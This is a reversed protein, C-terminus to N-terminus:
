GKYEAAPLVIGDEIWCCIGGCFKDGDSCCCTLCCCGSGGSCPVFFFGPLFGFNLFNDSSLESVGCTGFVADLEELEGVATLESLGIM